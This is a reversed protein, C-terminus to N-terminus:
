SRDDREEGDDHDIVEREEGDNHDIL